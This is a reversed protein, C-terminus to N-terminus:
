KSIMKFKTYRFVKAKDLKEETEFTWKPYGKNVYFQGTVILRHKDPFFDQPIDLSSDFPELFICHKSLGSNQYKAYDEPTIWSACACGWVIYELKL